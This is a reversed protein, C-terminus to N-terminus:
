RVGEAPVSGALLGHSRAKAGPRHVRCSDSGPLAENLCRRGTTKTVGGCREVEVTREYSYEVYGGHVPAVKRYAHRIFSICPGGPPRDDTRIAVDGNPLQEFWRKGSVQIEAQCLALPVAIETGQLPGDRLHCRVRM